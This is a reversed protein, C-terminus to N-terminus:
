GSQLLSCLPHHNHLLRAQTPLTVLSLCFSLSSVTIEELGFASLNPFFFTQSLVSKNFDSKVGPAILVGNLTWPCYGDQKQDNIRQIRENLGFGTGWLPWLISIPRSPTIKSFEYYGWKQRDKINCCLWIDKVKWVSLQILLHQRLGELSIIM